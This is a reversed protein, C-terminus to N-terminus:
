DGARSPRAPRSADPHLNEIHTHGDEDPIVEVRGGGALEVYFLLEGDPLDTFTVETRCVQARGRKKNWIEGDEDEAGLLEGAYNLVKISRNPNCRGRGKVRRWSGYDADSVVTLTHGPQAAGEQEVSVAAEDTAPQCGALPLATALVTIMLSANRSRNGQLM